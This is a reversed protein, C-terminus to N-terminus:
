ELHEKLYREKCKGIETFITDLSDELCEFECPSDLELAKIYQPVNEGEVICEIYAKVENFEYDPTISVDVVNVTVDACDEIEFTFRQTDEYWGSESDFFEEEYLDGFKGSKIEEIKRELIDGYYGCVEEDEELQERTTIRHVFTDKRLPLELTLIEEIHTYSEPKQKPMLYKLISDWDPFTPTGLQIVQGEFQAMDNEAGAEILFDGKNLDVHHTLILRKHVSTGLYKKVWILKDSWASPNEWPASSVIYTDYVNSLQEYASVAGPIPDLLSFIGPVENLRGLYQQLLANNLHKVGSDFDVIVNDLNIYLVQKKM